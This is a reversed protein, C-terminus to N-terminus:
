SLGSDFTLMRERPSVIKQAPARMAIASSIPHDSHQNPSQPNRSQDGSVSVAAM